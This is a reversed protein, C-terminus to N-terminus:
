PYYGHIEVSGECTGPILLGEGFTVTLLGDVPMPLWFVQSNCLTVPQEPDVAAIMMSFWNQMGNGANVACHWWGSQPVPGSVSYWAFVLIGTANPPVVFDPIPYVVSGQTLPLPGLIAAPQTAPEVAIWPEVSM